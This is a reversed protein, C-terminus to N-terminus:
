SILATETRQYRFLAGLLTELNCKKEVDRRCQQNETPRIDQACRQGCLSRKFFSFFFAPGGKHEYEM